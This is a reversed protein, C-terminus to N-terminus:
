CSGSLARLPCMPRRSMGRGRSEGDGRGIAHCETARGGGRRVRRGVTVCVCRTPRTFSHTETRGPPLPPPLSPPSPIPFRRPPRASGAPHVMEAEHVGVAVVEVRGVVMRRGDEETVVVPPSRRAVLLGKRLVDLTTPVFGLGLPADQPVPRLPLVAGGGGPDPEEPGPAGM